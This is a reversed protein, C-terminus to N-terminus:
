HEDHQMEMAALASGSLKDGASLILQLGNACKQVCWLSLGNNIPTNNRIKTSLNHKENADTQAFAKTYPV